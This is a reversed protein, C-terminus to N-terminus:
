RFSMKSEAIVAIVSLAIKGSRERFKPLRFLTKRIIKINGKRESNDVPPKPMPLFRNHPQPPGDFESRTVDKRM